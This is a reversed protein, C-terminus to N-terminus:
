IITWNKNYIDETDQPGQPGFWIKPAITIGKYKSLYDGWWSFSSNSLIKNDSSMILYLDDIENTYDSYFINDGHFNNKCWEIDDSVIIFSSEGIIKISMKYYELNPITHFNPKTLYDGRRIHISTINKSKVKEELNKRISKCKDLDINFVKFVDSKYEEFYKESQFVGNLLLNKEKPIPRYSFTPENYIFQFYNERKDEKLNKFLNKKYKDSTNGQNPTYCKDFDFYLDDNVNKSHAYAAMIQFMQNGLGGSLNASIM